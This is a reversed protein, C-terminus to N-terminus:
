KAAKMREEDETILESNFEDEFKAPIEIIKLIFFEV